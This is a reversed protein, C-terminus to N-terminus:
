LKLKVDTFLRHAQDLAMQSTCKYWLLCQLSEKNKCKIETSHHQNPMLTVVITPDVNSCASCAFQTLVARVSATLCIPANCAYASRYPPTLTAERRWSSCPSTSIARGKRSQPLPGAAAGAGMALGGPLPIQQLEVSCCWSQQNVREKGKILSSAHM